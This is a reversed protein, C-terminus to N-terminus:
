PQVRLDRMMRLYLSQESGDSDRWPAGVENGYMFQIDRQFQGSHDPRGTGFGYQTKLNVQSNFTPPPTVAGLALTMSRSVYAMAEHADFVGRLGAGTQFYPGGLFNFRYSAGIGGVDPKYKANNAIWNTEFLGGATSGGVLWFDDESHYSTKVTAGLSDFYGQYSPSAGGHSATTRSQTEATSFRPFVPLAVAPAYYCSVPVAAEMAVYSEVKMGQRLAEGAVINGQSHAALGIVAGTGVFFPNTSTRLGAVFKRLSTGCKFARYEGSNYVSRGEQGWGFPSNLIGDSLPTSWRFAV